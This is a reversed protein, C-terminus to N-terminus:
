NIDTIEWHGTKDSGIRKIKNQKKLAALERELTSKPINLSEVLMAKTLTNNERLANLIKDTRTVVEIVAENVAENVVGNAAENPYNINKIVVRFGTDSYFQPKMEESYGPLNKTENVIKKLGSGRREM